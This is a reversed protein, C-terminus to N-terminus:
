LRSIILTLETGEADVVNVTIHFFSLVFVNEPVCNDPLVVNEQSVYERTETVFVISVKDRWDDPLYESSNVPEGTKLNFAGEIGKSSEWPYLYKADYLVSVNDDWFNVTPTYNLATDPEGQFFSRVQGGNEAAAAALDALHRNILVDTESPATETQIRPIVIRLDEGLSEFDYELSYILGWPSLDPPLPVTFSLGAYAHYFPNDENFQIQLAPYRDCVFAFLPYDNPIGTFPRMRIDEEIVGYIYSASFEGHGIGICRNIYEIYNVGDYFFDSLEMRKQSVMDFTACYIQYSDDTRIETRLLNGIPIYGRYSEFRKGGPPNLVGDAWGNLARELAPKDDLWNRTVPTQGWDFTGNNIWEYRDTETFRYETGGTGSSRSTNEPTSGYFGYGEASLRAPLPRMPVYGADRAAYQGEDTLMWSLLERVPHDAPTDKRLVAYYHTIYPYTDAAITDRTPIVGDIAMLRVDPSGYMDSVYYFVSYGLASEANNYDAIADILGGMESPRMTLPPDSPTEGEMALKLFLTQSGSNDPRQFATIPADGGGVESWNTLRGTYIDRIQRRTLTQATNATNCLFVLADKVVPIIELETNSKEALDLEFESPYTVFIIDKKGDILNLYANHTREHELGQFTGLRNLLVAESLPITATSGDIMSILDYEDYNQPPPKPTVSPAPTPAPLDPLPPYSSCAALALAIVAAM